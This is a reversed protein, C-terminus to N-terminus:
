FKLNFVLRWLWASLRLARKLTGLHPANQWVALSRFLGGRRLSTKNSLAVGLPSQPASRQIAATTKNHCCQVVSPIAPNTMRKTPFKKHNMKQPPNSLQMSQSSAATTNAIV